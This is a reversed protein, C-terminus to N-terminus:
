LNNVETSTIPPPPRKIVSYFVSFIEIVPEGKLVISHGGGAPHSANRHRHSQVINPDSDPLLGRLSQLKNFNFNYISEHFSKPLISFCAYLCPSLYQPALTRCNPKSSVTEYDVRLCLDAFPPIIHAFFITIIFVVIRFIGFYLLVETKWRNRRMSSFVCVWNLAIQPLIISSLLSKLLISLQSLIIFDSGHLTYKTKNSKQPLFSKMWAQPPFGGVKAHFSHSLESESKCSFRPVCEPGAVSCFSMFRAADAVCITAVLAKGSPFVLPDGLNGSYNQSWVYEPNKNM